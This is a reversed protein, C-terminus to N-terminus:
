ALDALLGTDYVRGSSDPSGVFRLGLGYEEDLSMRLEADEAIQPLANYLKIAPHTSPAVAALPTFLLVGAKTFMSTGARTNGSSGGPRFLWHVQSGVLAKPAAATIADTDPYRVIASITCPGEGVYFSDVVSGFEEAWVDRYRHRPQFRIGRCTGIPTGNWSLRGPVRIISGTNATAM